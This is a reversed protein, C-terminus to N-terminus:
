TSSCSYEFMLKLVDNKLRFNLCLPEFYAWFRDYQRLPGLYSVLKINISKKLFSETAWGLNFDSAIRMGEKFRIILDHNKTNLHFVMFEGLYQINKNKFFLTKMAFYLFVHGSSSKNTKQDGLLLTRFSNKKHILM